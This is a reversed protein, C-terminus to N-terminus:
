LLPNKSANCSNCLLQLNEITNCKYYDKNKFCKFVSEIHDIQNNNTSKCYNCTGNFKKIIFNRIKNNSIYSSSSSRFMKLAKKRDISENLIFHLIKHPNWKFM